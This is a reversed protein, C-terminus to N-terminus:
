EDKREQRYVVFLPLPGDGPIGGQMVAFHFVFKVHRGTKVSFIPIKYEEPLPLTAITKIM